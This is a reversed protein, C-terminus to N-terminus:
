SPLQPYLVRSVLLGPYQSPLYIYMDNIEINKNMYQYDGTGPEYWYITHFQWVFPFSQRIDGGAHPYYYKMCCDTLPLKRSLSVRCEEAPYVSWCQVSFVKMAGSWWRYKSAQGEEIRVDIRHDIKASFGDGKQFCRALLGFGTVYPCFIPFFISFFSILHTFFRTDGSGFHPLAAGPQIPM